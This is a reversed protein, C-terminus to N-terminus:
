KNNVVKVHQEEKEGTAYAMDIIEATHLVQVSSNRKELGDNIHMRCLSCGVVVNKMETAEINDIKKDNIKRSLEYHVASFTGGAGCCRDADKMEVFKLGPIAKFIQRPQASVNMGRVLHCADHYTIELPLHGFKDMDCYNVVFESIDQVKASIEKWRDILPSDQLVHKYEKQLASGCSSCATIIYDCNYEQFAKINQEALIRASETDGNIFAPTGCCCQDEPIIVDYGNRTLVSVVSEGAQPYFYNLTCGTFFLVRGKSVPKQSKNITPLKSRLPNTTLNPIVRRLNLGSAPIPIRAVRGRGDPLEKFMLNQFLAGTRLGLDFLKRFRLGLFASKKIINLGNKKVLKSRAQLFLDNTKVHSSCNTKCAMCMLCKEFRAQIGPTLELEGELVAEMMRAKSRPTTNENNEALFVPCITRCNGCRSCKVIEEEIDKCLDQDKM